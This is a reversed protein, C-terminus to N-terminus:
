RCPWFFGIGTESRRAVLRGKRDIADGDRNFRIRETRLRGRIVRTLYITDGHLAVLVEKTPPIRTAM